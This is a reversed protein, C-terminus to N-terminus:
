CLSHCGQGVQPISQLLPTVKPLCSDAASATAMTVLLASLVELPRPLLGESSSIQPHRVTDVVTLSRQLHMYAREEGGEGPRGEERREM